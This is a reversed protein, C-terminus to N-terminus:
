MNSLDLYTSSSRLLLKGFVQQRKVSIPQM